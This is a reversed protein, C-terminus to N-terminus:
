LGRGGEREGARWRLNVRKYAQIDMKFPVITQPHLNSYQIDNEDVCTGGPHVRYRIPSEDSSLQVNCYRTTKCAALLRKRSKEYVWTRVIIGSCNTEDLKKFRSPKKKELLFM